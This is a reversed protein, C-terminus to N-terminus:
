GAKRALLLWLGGECRLSRVQFGHDRCLARLARATTMAHYRWGGGQARPLRSISEGFVVPRRLILRWLLFRCAMQATPMTAASVFLVGGPRLVRHAQRFFVTRRDPRVYAFADSCWIGEMSETAFPMEMMDAQVFM